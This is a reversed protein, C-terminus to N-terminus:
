SGDIKDVYANDAKKAQCLECTADPEPLKAVNLSRTTKLVLIKFSM